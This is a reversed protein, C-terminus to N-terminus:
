SRAAHRDPEAPKRKIFHSTYGTETRDFSPIDQVVRANKLVVQAQSMVFYKRAKLLAVQAQSM